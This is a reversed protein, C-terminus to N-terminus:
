LACREKLRAPAALQFLAPCSVHVMGAQPRSALGELFGSPSLQTWGQGLGRGLHRGLATSPRAQARSGWASATMAQPGQWQPCQSVCGQRAEGM